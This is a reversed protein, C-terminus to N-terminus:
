RLANINRNPQPARHRDDSGHEHYSGGRLDRSRRSSRGIQFVRPLTGAAPWQAGCFLLLRGLFVRACPTARYRLSCLMGVGILAHASRPRRERARFRCATSKWNGAATPCLALRCRGGGAARDHLIRVGCSTERSLVLPCYRCRLVEADGNCINTFADRPSLAGYTWRWKNERPGLELERFSAHPQVRYDALVGLHFRRARGACEKFVLKPADFYSGM